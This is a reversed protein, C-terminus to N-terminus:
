VLIQDNIFHKKIESVIEKSASLGVFTELWYHAGPRNAELFFYQDDESLILDISCWTLNLCKALAILKDQLKQPLATLEWKVHEDDHVRWDNKALESDQSHIKCPFIKDCIVVVRFEYKKNIYKQFICPAAFLLDKDVEDAKIKAPSLSYPPTSFERLLLENGHVKSFRHLEDLDNTLIFPPVNIGLDYAIKYESLKNQWEQSGNFPDGPFWLVDKRLFGRFEKLIQSWRKRHLFQERNKEPLINFDFIPYPYLPTNWIVIKVDSLNMIVDGVELINVIANETISFTVKGQAAFQVFDLFVFKINQECLQDVFGYSLNGMAFVLVIDQDEDGMVYNTMCAYDVQEREKKLEEGINKIKEPNAPTWSWKEPNERNQTSLKLELYKSRDFEKLGFVEM